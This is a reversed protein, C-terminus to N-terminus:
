LAFSVSTKAESLEWLDRALEDNHAYKSLNAPGVPGRTERLWQPGSYSGPEALTAAFLTPDAGRAASQFLIPMFYPATAHIIRNAGM